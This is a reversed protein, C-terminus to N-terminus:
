KRGTFLGYGMYPITDMASGFQDKIAQRIGPNTLYLRILRRWARLAWRWGVWEIRSKIETRADIQHFTAIREVLGSEDWLAQWFDRPFISVGFDDIHLALDPTPAIVWLTENLGVYGGPKAVRVCSAIARSKENVFGLVSECIVADFTNTAFPLNLVDAVQLAIRDAVRDECARLRSWAIMRASLDISTVHCGYTRAIYSPGAGIGAGVYLVERAKDIHCRLLLAHTAPFGGLHKTIGVQAQMDLYGSLPDLETQTAM